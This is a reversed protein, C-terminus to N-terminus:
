KLYCHFVRVVWGGSHVISAKRLCIPVCDNTAKAIYENELDFNLVSFLVSDKKVLNGLSFYHTQIGSFPTEFDQVKGIQTNKREIKKSSSINIIGLEIFQELFIDTWYDVLNKSAPVNSDLELTIATSNKAFEFYKSLRTHADDFTNQYNDNYEIIYNINFLPLNDTYKQCYLHPIGNEPSHVDIIFDFGISLYLLYYKLSDVISLCISRKKAYEKITQINENKDQYKKKFDWAFIRNWNIGTVPSFVGNKAYLYNEWAFPNVRPVIRIFGKFFSKNISKLRKILNCLVLTSLTENGHIQSHLYISPNGDKNSGFDYPKILELFNKM